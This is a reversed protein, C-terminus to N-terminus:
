TKLSVSGMLSKCAADDIFNREAAVRFFALLQQLCAGHLLESAALTAAASVAVAHNARAKDAAMLNQSVKLAMSAQQLDRDDILPAMEAEIEKARPAFQASYRRTFAELCELTNLHLQRQTKKLLDFFVPLFVTLGDLKIVPAQQKGQNKLTSENLAIMTLGKLAADRTLEQKLRDAFIEIIHAVKAPPLVTHCVAVLNAAAIISCSKM